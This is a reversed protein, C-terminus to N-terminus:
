PQREYLTRLKQLIRHLQVRVAGASKNVMVGIEEASLEADFRLALIHQQDEPLQQIMAQLAQGTEAQMITELVQDPAPVDLKGWPIETGSYGKRIHSTVVHHAIQFIWAAPSGGRYQGLNRFAQIFIQSTLDEADQPTSVRRRCYLYVRRFYLDYFRAFAARHQQAQRLLEIEDRESFM